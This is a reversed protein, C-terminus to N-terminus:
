LLSRTSDTGKHRQGTGFDWLTMEDHFASLAVAHQSSTLRYVASIYIEKREDAGDRELEDGAQAVPRLCIDSPVLCPVSCKQYQSVWEKDSGVRGVIQPSLQRYDYDLAAASVALLQKIFQLRGTPDHHMALDLDEM